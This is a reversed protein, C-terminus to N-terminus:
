SEGGSQAAGPTGREYVHVSVGRERLAYATALGVIGAGLVAVDSTRTM